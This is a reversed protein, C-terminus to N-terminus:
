RKARKTSINTACDDWIKPFGMLWAVFIPSLGGRRATPGPSGSPTPGSAAVDAPLSAQFGGNDQAAKGPAGKHDRSQPTAWSALMAAQHTTLGFGNGNIGKAKIAERRAKLREVDATGFAGAEPTPWAALGKRALTEPRLRAAERPMMGSTIEAEQELGWGSMNDQQDIARASNRVSEVGPSRWGTFGSGETRRASPQLRCLPPGAPMDQLRWTLAFEPSGSADMRARLRSELSQQLAASPSSATFLPGSTASTPMAKESDLSRFRSVPVHAPGCRATTPGDPSLSPSPGAASAPSSTANVIPGCTKLDFMSLQVTMSM